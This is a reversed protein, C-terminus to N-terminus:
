EDENQQAEACQIRYQELRELIREGAGHGDLFRDCNTEFFRRLEDFNCDPSISIRGECLGKWDKIATEVIAISLDYFGNDPCGHVDYEMGTDDVFEPCKTICYTEVTKSPIPKYELREAEWGPVPVYDLSWSCGRSGDFSPVANACNECLSKMYVNKM